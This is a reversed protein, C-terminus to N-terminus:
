GCPLGDGIALGGAENVAVGEPAADLVGVAVGVIEAVGVTVALREAVAAGVWASM